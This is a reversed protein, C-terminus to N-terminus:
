GRAAEALARVTDPGLLDLHTRLALVAHGTADAVHERKADAVNERAVAELYGPVNKVIAAEVEEKSAQVFGCMSLKLEYPHQAYIRIQHTHAAIMAAAYMYLTKFSNGGAQAMKSGAKRDGVLKYTEVGMAVPRAREVARALADYAAAVRQIDDADTRILHAKRAPAPPTEVFRVAVCRLARTELDYEIVSLGTNRFGPDVGILKIKM